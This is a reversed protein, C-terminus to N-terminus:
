PQRKSAEHEWLEKKGCEERSNGHASGLSVCQTSELDIKIALLLSIAPHGNIGGHACDPCPITVAIILGIIKNDRAITIVGIIQRLYLLTCHLV